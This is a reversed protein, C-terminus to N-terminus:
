NGGSCPMLCILDPVKFDNLEFVQRRGAGWLGSGPFGDYDRCGQFQSRLACLTFRLSITNM